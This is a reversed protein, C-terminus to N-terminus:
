RYTYSSYNGFQNISDSNLKRDEYEQRKNLAKIENRAIKTFRPIMKKLTLFIKTDVADGGMKVSYFFCQNVIAEFNDCINQYDENSLPRVPFSKGCIRCKWYEPNEPDRMVTPVEKGRKNVIWHVCTKKVEKIQKKKGAKFKYVDNKRKVLDSIAEIIKRTEKEIKKHNKKAM